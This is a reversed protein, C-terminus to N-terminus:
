KENKVGLEYPSQITGNGKKITLDYRLCFAPKVNYESDIKDAYFIGNENVVNILNDEEIGRLTTLVNSGENVFMEGM